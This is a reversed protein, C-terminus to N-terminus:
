CINNDSGGNEQIEMSDEDKKHKKAKPGCAKKEKKQLGETKRKEKILKQFQKKEKKKKSEERLLKKGVKKRGAEEKECLKRKLAERFEHESVLNPPTPFLKKTAKGKRNPSIFLPIKLIDDVTLTAKMQEPVNVEGSKILKLSLKKFKNFDKEEHRCSFDSVQTGALKSFFSVLQKRSIDEKLFFALDKLARLQQATFESEFVNNTSTSASCDDFIHASNSPETSIQTSDLILDSTSPETSIETNDFSLDFMAPETTIETDNDFDLSPLIIVHQDLQNESKVPCSFHSMTQTQESTSPQQNSTATTADGTPAARYVKSPELKGSKLVKDPNYPYIGAAEFSKAAIEATAAKYWVPRLVMAFSELNVGDGTQNIHQRLAEAWATKIVGFFAQDLPQMLHSANALLCYLIIDNESCLESTELLSTHSTHGDVLLLVPKKLHKVAPIFSDRLWSHFIAANIWGNNSLQLNAEPFAALLNKQPIRKHPYILMPPTYQGTVSTCALVTVQHKTFPTVRYVHKSGKCAKVKRNKMDFSFGTEDANFIREPSELITPDIGDVCTKFRSFWKEVAAPTIIAREKGLSMPTRMSLQPHRKLFGYLWRTSPVESKSKSAANRLAMIAKATAKVDEHTKGFGRQALDILWKSLLNEEEATLLTHKTVVVPRRGVLKDRLTSFPIGFKSATERISSEKSRISAIAANVVDPSHIVRKLRKKVSQESM